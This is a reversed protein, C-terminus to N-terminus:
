LKEEGCPRDSDKHHDKYLIRDEQEEGDEDVKKFGDNLIKVKREIEVVKKLGM